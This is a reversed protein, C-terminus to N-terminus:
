PAVSNLYVELNTYGSPTLQQGDAGDHPDLGHATEWADPMGDGDSDVRATGGHLEGFGGGGVKAALDAQSDLLKGTKTTVNQILLKDVADRTLSCGVSAVIKDYAQAPTDVSVAVPPRAWDEQLMTVVDPLELAQGDLVNGQAFVQDNGNAQYWPAHNGSAPGRIFNNGILEHFSIGASHALDYGGVNWNYVV